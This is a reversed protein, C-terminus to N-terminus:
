DLSCGCNCGNNDALSGGSADDLDKDDLEEIKIEENEATNEIPEMEEAM